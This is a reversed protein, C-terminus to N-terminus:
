MWRTARYIFLMCERHRLWVFSVSLCSTLMQVNLISVCVISCQNSLDFRTANSEFGVRIHVETIAMMSIRVRRGM